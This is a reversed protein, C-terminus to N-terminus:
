LIREPISAVLESSFRDWPSPLSRTRRAALTQKATAQLIIAQLIFLHALAWAAECPGKFPKTNDTKSGKFINLAL